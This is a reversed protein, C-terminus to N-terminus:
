LLMLGVLPSIAFIRGCLSSASEPVLQFALFFLLGVLCALKLIEGGVAFLTPVNLSLFERPIEFYSAYGAIFTLALLYAAAPTFAILLGETIWRTEKKTEQDAM